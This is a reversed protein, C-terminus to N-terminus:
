LVSPKSSHHQLLSKLIKQITPLDFCDIRFSILGTYGNSPSINFSFSWYKPWKIRVASENSFVRISPVISPPLLLPRCLVLHISPIASEIAMLTLLSRSITFSLSPQCAATWQAAFLQVHSLLQVIVLARLGSLSDVSNWKSKNRQTQICSDSVWLLPRPQLCSNPVQQCLYKMSCSHISTVM